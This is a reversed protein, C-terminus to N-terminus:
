PHADLDQQVQDRFDKGHMLRKAPPPSYYLEYQSVTPQTDDTFTFSQEMNISLTFMFWRSLQINTGAGNLASMVYAQQSTVPSVTTVAGWSPTTGSDFSSMYTMKWKEIDVGNNQANTLYAVFFRPTGNGALDAYKSWSSRMSQSHEGGQEVVNTSVINTCDDGGLSYYYGNYFATSMGFRASALNNIGSSWNSITGTSNVSATYTDNVCATPATRGGILYIYGNADTAAQFSVPQPLDTGYSWSGTTAGTSPNLQIFQVDIKPNTKDDGGMVYLYSGIAVTSHNERATTFSTGSSWASTIDGGSSLSPSYYVTAQATGSGDLGGTVYIYSNFTACSIWGRAGPLGNTATAWSGPVGNTGIQSYYVAASATNTTDEGGIYYLYGGATVMCGAARAAPLTPGATWSSLSGDPNITAYATTNTENGTSTCQTNGFTTGVTFSTCGGAEYIYGNTAVSSATVRNTTYANVSTWTSPGKNGANYEEVYEDKTSAATCGAPPNGATCGGTIYIYGNAFATRADWRATITTVSDTLNSTINGTSMSIKGIEITGYTTNTSGDHGGTIYFYGNMAYADARRLTHSMAGTATSWSTIDGTSSIQAYYINSTQGAAATAGGALYIYNNYVAGAMLAKAVPLGQTTTTFAAVSGNSTNIQGRYVTSVYSSCGTVHASASCGGFAMLYGHYAITSMGYISAGLSNANTTWNGALAGSSTLQVYFVSSIAGSSYAYGGTVYLYNNYVTIGFAALGTAGNLLHTSDTTWTGISGDANLPAYSTNGTTDSTGTQCGNSSNVTICGGVVYIYGNNIAVGHEYIATPLANSPTNLPGVQGASSILSYAQTALTNGTVCSVGGTNMSTCGAIRYVNGRWSILSAGVLATLSAQADTSWTGLSGDANIQAIQSDGLMSSCTFSANFSNCGGQIYMFGDYAFTFSSGLNARATAFANTTKWNSSSTGYISGDSAISAYVVTNITGGGGGGTAGGFDYLYGNYVQLDAGTASSPLSVASTTFTGISGDPNLSAYAVTAVSTNYQKGTQGGAIYLVGNEAAAGIGCLASPLSNTSTTWTASLQGNTQIRNYYIASSVTTCDTTTTAGGIAYMYGNYALLRFRALGVPLSTTTSWTGIVSSSSGIRAFEVSSLPVTSNDGAGGAVYAYDDYITAGQLFRATNLNNTNTTWAPIVGGTVAGRSINGTTANFDVNSEPNTDRFLDTTSTVTVTPDITLPYTGKKLGTVATQLNSGQLQFTVKVNAPAKNAQYAIPKPITFFLKTKPAKKRAAQLLKLDKSSGTSVQGNLPSDSGYIGISGDSEQRAAFNDGLGLSYNLVMKDGNAHNLLVDEKVAGAQMTYVLWGTGDSLPYVVRNGDQRGAYLNFKPTMTFNVDNIPDTVQLGKSAQDYTVASIKPGGGSANPDQTAPNYGANFNFTSKNTDHVLKSALLQDKNELLAEASGLAYSHQVFLNQMLPVLDGAVLVILVLALTLRVRTKAFFTNLKWRRQAPLLRNFIRALKQVDPKGFRFNLTISKAVPEVALQKPSVNQSGETVHGHLLRREDYTAEYQHPRNEHM